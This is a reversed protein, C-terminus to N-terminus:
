LIEEEYTDEKEGVDIITLNMSEEDYEFRMIPEDFIIRVPRDIKKPIFLWCGNNYVVDMMEQLKEKTLASDKADM